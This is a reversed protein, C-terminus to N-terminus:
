KKGVLGTELDMDYTKNDLVLTAKRDGNFTISGSYDFPIYAPGIGNAHLTASGSKIRYSFKDMVVNKLSYNFKVSFDV